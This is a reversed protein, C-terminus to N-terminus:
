KARKASALQRWHGSGTISHPPVDQRSDAAPSARQVQARQQSVASKQRHRKWLDNLGDMTFDIAEHNEVETRLSARAGSAAKSGRKPSQVTTPEEISGHTGSGESVWPRPTRKRAAALTQGQIPAHSRSARFSPESEEDALHVAFSQGHESHRDLVEARQASIWQAIVPQMMGLLQKAASTSRLAPDNAVEPIQCILDRATQAITPPSIKHNGELILGAMYKHQLTPGAVNTVISLVSRWVKHQFRAGYADCDGSPYEHLYHELATSTFEKANERVHDLIIQQLFRSKDDAKDGYKPRLAPVLDKRLAPKNNDRDSVREPEKNLWQGVHSMITSMLKGEQKTTKLLAQIDIFRRGPEYLVSQCLNFYVDDSLNPFFDRRRTGSPHSEVGPEISPYFLRQVEDVSRVQPLSALQNWDALRVDLGHQDQIESTTKM